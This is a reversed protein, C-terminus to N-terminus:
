CTLKVLAGESGGLRSNMLEITGSMISFETRRQVLRL